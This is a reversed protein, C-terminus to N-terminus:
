VDKDKNYISMFVVIRVDTGSKSYYFLPQLSLYVRLKCGIMNSGAVPISGRSAAYISGSLLNDTEDKRKFWKRFRKESTFTQVLFAYFHM